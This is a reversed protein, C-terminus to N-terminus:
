QTLCNKGSIIKTLKQQRYLSVGIQHEKIYPKGWKLGM